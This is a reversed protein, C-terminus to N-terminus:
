ITPKETTIEQVLPAIQEKLNTVYEISKVKGGGWFKAIFKFASLGRYHSLTKFNEENNMKDNLELINKNLAEVQENSSANKLDQIDNVVREALTSIDLLIKAKGEGNFFGNKINLGHNRLPCVNINKEKGSFFSKNKELEILQSQDEPELLAQSHVSHQSSLMDSSNSLSLPDFFHESSSSKNLASQSLSIDHLAIDDDTMRSLSQSRSLSPKLVASLHNDGEDPVSQSLIEEHSQLQSPMDPIVPICQKTLDANEELRQFSYAGEKKLYNIFNDISNGGISEDKDNFHSESEKNLYDIFNNKISKEVKFVLLNKDSLKFDNSRISEFTIKQSKNRSVYKLLNSNHKKMIVFKLKENEQILPESNKYIVRYISPM